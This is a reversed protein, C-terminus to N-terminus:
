SDKRIRIDYQVVEHWELSQNTVKVGFYWRSMQTFDFSNIKCRLEVNQHQRVYLSPWLVSVSFLLFILLYLHCRIQVLIM